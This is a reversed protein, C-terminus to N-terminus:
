LPCYSKPNMKMNQRSDVYKKVFHYRQSVPDLLDRLFMM